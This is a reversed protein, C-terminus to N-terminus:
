YHVDAPIVYLKKDQYPNQKGEKEYICSWKKLINELHKPDRIGEGDQDYLFINAGRYAGLCHFRYKIMDKDWDSNEFIQKDTKEKLVKRAIKINELFAEKTYQMGDDILKKGEKSDAECICPIEGWRAKGSVQSTNDDFTTYYDFPQGDEGCLGDLINKAKSLADKKNEGYSLVRIVMHM